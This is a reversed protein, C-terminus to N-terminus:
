ARHDAVKWTGSQYRLAMGGKEDLTFLYLWGNDFLAKVAPHKALIALIAEPPAAVCVALRLPDHAYRGGDHVSQWPLGARLLGGNGEVVGIGGVVNHLLKNGAGFMQPAVTSGYYQLSIWSAVVVPATLILELVSFNEDARWDYDHLFARGDLAKGSTYSRPAAIFAQCGALAWEPRVEAWDRARRMLDTESKRTPMRGARELRTLSSAKEFWRVAQEIDATHDLSQTDSSYLTIADTTTDHLAGLFLTDKPIEIGAAALDERTDSANLLSALMRANVDGSYGGCAGCQLASAHPNNVVHSGHGVLVVLRSFGQTLSMARLITGAMKARAEREVSTRFRPAPDVSPAAATFALTDKILKRVYLLGAAEVFAFSSVAALKFRGWARKARGKFRLSQDSSPSGEVAACTFQGPNLLVPLRLEETDSAFRRHSLPLGFFGAFGLTQSNPSVAELARRIIESRVDICFAAQLTPRSTPSSAAPAALTLALKRHAAREYASQLIADIVTDPAIDQPAAHADIVSAWSKALRARHREFLAAEWVLRIALLDRLTTDTSGQLEAQWRKYRAYQSWGGLGLLLQHFYSELAAASLNLKRACVVIADDATVPMSDAFNAFGKLGAIEPTLDHTAYARWAAFTSINRASAWLAQGEDFYGAAWAGIRENIIAPWDMGGSEAALVALTPLPSTPAPDHALAAKLADLSTPATTDHADALANALDADEIRRAAIHDRYWKRPMTMPCAAIRGLRASVHSLNEHTHGLFPNVAVTAALPWAPPIFGGAREAATLIVVRELATEVSMAGMAAEATNVYM